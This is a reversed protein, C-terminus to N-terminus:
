VFILSRLLVSQTDPIFYVFGKKDTGDYYLGTGLKEGNVATSNLFPCQYYPRLSMTDNDFSFMLSGIGASGLPRIITKNSIGEYASCGGTNFLTLGKNDYAIDGTWTGTTAATIDLMDIVNSAGSLNDINVHQVDGDVTSTVKAEYDPNTSTNSNTIPRATAM